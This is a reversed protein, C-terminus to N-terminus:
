LENVEVAYSKCARAECEIKKKKAKIDTRSQTWHNNMAVSKLAISLLGSCPALAESNGELPIPDLNELKFLDKLYEILDKSM